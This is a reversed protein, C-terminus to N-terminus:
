RSALLARVRDLPLAPVRRGGRGTSEVNAVISDIVAEEVAHVVATFFPDLCGWPLFDLQDLRGAARATAAAIGPTFAGPNATSLAVFLDGSYHSGTTGTRALGLPVRRALAACQGPLLPADTVVVVIISGAGVPAIAGGALPNDDLLQPGLHRGAITLEHRVGFNAQVFVGVTFTSDGYPVIRSATGSGGAYHYCNMSTGGGVSGEDIPGTRAGDIAEVVHEVTVAEAHIDNLYGDWTEAAVPLFWGDALEPHRRAAWACTGAHAIGVAHTNTITIPLATTGSETIWSVGTMEGNGNMSHVGAAVPDGPDDPRPVVTTVGTRVDDGDVITRYGVAVGPVDTISNWEGPTGVWEVGLTRARPLGAPTREHADNV